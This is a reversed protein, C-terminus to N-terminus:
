EGIAGEATRFESESEFRAEGRVKAKWELSSIRNIEAEVQRVGVQVRRTGDAQNLLAVGTLIFATTILAVGAIM